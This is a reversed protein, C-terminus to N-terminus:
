GHTALDLYRRVDQEATLDIGDDMFPVAHGRIVLELNLLIWLGATTQVYILALYRGFKERDKVTRVICPRGGADQLMWYRADGGPGTGLEPANIGALRVTQYVYHNCGLDLLVDVTDGDIVHSVVGRYLGGVYPATHRLFEEPVRRTM